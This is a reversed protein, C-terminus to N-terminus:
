KHLLSCHLVLGEWVVFRPRLWPLARHFCHLSIIFYDVRRVVHHRRVSSCARAIWNLRTVLSTFRFNDRYDGLVKRHLHREEKEGGALASSPHYSPNRYINGSAITLFPRKSCQFSFITALNVTTPKCIIYLDVYRHPDRRRM